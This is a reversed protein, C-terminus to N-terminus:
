RVKKQLPNFQYETFVVGALILFAGTINILSFAENMFLFGVIGASLPEITYIVAAKNPTIKSQSISQFLFCVGTALVGCVFFSVLLFHSYEVIFDGKGISKFASLLFVTILQLFTFRNVNDKNVFFSLFVVQIGFCLICVLTLMDGKNLYFEFNGVVSFLYVGIVSILLGVISKISPIIKLLIFSFFPVTVVFLGTIFGSRVTTTYKLGETQFYYGGFLAFGSLLAGIIEKKNKLLDKFSFRAFFYIVMAGIFFRVAMFQFVGMFELTKQVTVFTTGWIINAVVLIFIYYYEKKVRKRLIFFCAM